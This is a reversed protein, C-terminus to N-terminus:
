QTNVGAGGLDVPRMVGDASGGPRWSTWVFGVYENVIVVNEMKVECKEKTTGLRSAGRCCKREEKGANAERAITLRRLMLKGARRLHRTSTDLSASVPEVLGVGVFIGTQLEPPSGISLYELTEDDEETPFHIPFFDEDDVYSFDTDTSDTGTVDLEPAETDHTESLSSGSLEYLSPGATEPFNTEDVAGLAPSPPPPLDYPWTHAQTSSVSGTHNSSM